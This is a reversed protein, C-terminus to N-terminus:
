LGLVKLVDNIREISLHGGVPEENEFGWTCPHHVYICNFGALLAPNIDSKMSNGILWSAPPSIGQEDAIKKYVISNKETLIYIKEFWRSLGSKEIRDRQVGPDGKTVLFLPYKGCLRSLVEEAGEILSVPQEFVWWGLGEIEKRLVRSYARGYKRCCYEYTEGLAYPFCEKLFGGYLRVNKIDNRDLVELAEQVPFGLEKMIGAFLIKARDFYITTEVLTDDFDFLMGSDM